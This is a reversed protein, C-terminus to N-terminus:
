FAPATSCSRASTASRLRNREKRGTAAIAARLAAADACADGSPAPVDLGLPLLWRSAAAIAAKGASVYLGDQLAPVPNAIAVALSGVAGTTFTIRWAWNWQSTHRAALEAHARLRAAEDECSQAHVPRALLLM